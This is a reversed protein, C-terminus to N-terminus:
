SYSGWDRKVFWSFPIFKWKICDKPVFVEDTIEMKIIQGPKLSLPHVKSDSEFDWMHFRDSQDKATRSPGYDLPACLRVLVRQDEKSNFTIRVKQKAHIAKIFEDKL